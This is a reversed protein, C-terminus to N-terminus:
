CAAPIHQALKLFECVSTMVALGRDDLGSEDCEVVGDETLSEIVLEM